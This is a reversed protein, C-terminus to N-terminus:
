VLLLLVLARAATVARCLSWQTLFIPGLGQDSSSSCTLPSERNTM